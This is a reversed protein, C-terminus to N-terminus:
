EVRFTALPPEYGLSAHPPLHFELREVPSGNLLVEFHGAQVQSPAEIGEEVRIGFTYTGSQSCPGFSCLSSPPQCLSIHGLSHTNGDPTQVFVTFRGKAQDPFSFSPSFTASLSSSPAMKYRGGQGTIAQKAHHHSSHHSKSRNGSGSYSPSFHRSYNSGRSRSGRSSNDSSYSYSSYCSSSSCSSSSCHGRRGGACAVVYIIGATLGAITAGATVAALRSRQQRDESEIFTPSCCPAPCEIEEVPEVEVSFLPSPSTPLLLSLFLYFSLIFKPGPKKLFSSLM